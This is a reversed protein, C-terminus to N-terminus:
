TLEEVVHSAIMRGIRLGSAFQSTPRRRPGYAGIFRRGRIVPNQYRVILIKQRNCLDDLIVREVVRAGRPTMQRYALDITLALRDAGRNHLIGICTERTHVKSFFM